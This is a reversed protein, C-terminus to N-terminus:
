FVYRVGLSLVGERQNDSIRGAAGVSVEFRNSLKASLRIDAFGSLDEPTPSPAFFATGVLKMGLDRGSQGFENEVGVTLSPVLLMGNDLTFDRSAEVGWTGRISTRSTRNVSLALVGAGTEGFGDARLSAVTVRAFPLFDRWRYGVQFSGGGIFNDAQGKADGANGLGRTVGVINSMVFGNADFAFAGLPYHAALSFYYGNTAAKADRGSVGLQSHAYGFVGSLRVGGDFVYDAGGIAGWLQTDFDATNQSGDTRGAGGLADAWLHICKDAVTDIRNFAMRNFMAATDLSDTVVDGYVEGASKSAVALDVEKGGPAYYVGYVADSAAGGYTVTSFKGGISAATLLPYVKGSYSGSAVSLALTGGLTAKGHVVLKDSQTPSVEMALTSGASQTYDGDVTLTGISAGPRVTGGAATLNGGITGYGGVVGGTGATVSGAVAASPHSADGVILAAGAVTTGGTYTNQGNLIVTGSGTVVVGGTGSVAGGFIVTDSRDFALVGNDLVDGVLSGTTGGAGVVLTSSITTGGTYTNAGTLVLTGDGAQVLSGTGSVAGGFIVTDSRDFALIGNDAVDGVLSGMTGGAGIVLTGSSITTGGTYTNAGTLVLTGGGVSDTFTLGGAGSLTGSFVAVHGYADVTNGSYAEISFDNAVNRNTDIRLTGGKFDATGSPGIDSVPYYAANTDISASSGIYLIPDVAQDIWNYAAFGIQYTGSAAITFSYAVWQTVSHGGVVNTDAQPGDPGNCALIDLVNTGDGSLSFLVGDNYPNYDNAAYSWYFTYTGASLTKTETLVAYNTSQDGGSLTSLVSNVTGFTLGLVPDINVETVDLGSPLIEAMYEGSAPTLSFTKPNDGSGVQLSVTTNYANVVGNTTWGAFSGGNAFSLWSDAWAPMGAAFIGAVACVGLLLRKKLLHMQPLRYTKVLIYTNQTV